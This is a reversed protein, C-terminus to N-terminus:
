SAVEERAFTEVKLSTEGLISVYKGQKVNGENETSLVVFQGWLKNEIIFQANEWTPLDCKNSELLDSLRQPLSMKIDDISVITTMAEKGPVIESKNIEVVKHIIGCNTCQAFKPKVRDNDDIISFVTFMHVPPNKMQKFQQLVCRCKILHKHGSLM